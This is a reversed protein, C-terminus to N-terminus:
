RKLGEKDKMVEAWNVEKILERHCCLQRLRMMMAQFDDDCCQFFFNARWYSYNRQLSVFIHAYNKMLQGRRHYRGVIDAAQKHFIGYCLREEETLEVSRVLVIKKPLKVLLSGDPKKDTKSRRLCIAELLVQLREFGRPDGHKCPRVIHQKFVRMQQKGAYMGFDLFNTLSWLEMLNNQIPTGTIVWKRLTDLELAAKHSKSLHNKVMHGEDLVVRLWKAKLLPSGSREGYTFEAALTGYTTIVIDHSELDGAYFAKSNGHHVKLKVAM